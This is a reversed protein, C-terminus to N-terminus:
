KGKKLAAKKKSIDMFLHAPRVAKFVEDYQDFDEGFLELLNRHGEGLQQHFDSMGKAGSMGKGIMESLEFFDYHRYMHSNIFYSNLVLELKPEKFQGKPAIYSADMQRDKYSIRVIWKDFDLDKRFYPFERDMRKFKFSIPRMLKQAEKKLAPNM